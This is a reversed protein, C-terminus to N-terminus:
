DVLNFMSASKRFASFDDGLVYESYRIAGPVRMDDYFTQEILFCSSPMAHRTLQEHFSESPCVIADRLDALTQHGM